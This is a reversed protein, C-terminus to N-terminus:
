ARIHAYGLGKEKGAAISHWQSEFRLITIQAHSIPLSAVAFHYEVSPNDGIDSVTDPLNRKYIKVHNFKTM